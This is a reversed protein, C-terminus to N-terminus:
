NILLSAAVFGAILLGAALWPYSKIIIHGISWSVVIGFLAILLFKAGAPIPIYLSIMQFIVVIPLHILYIDYSAPHLHRWTATPRQGWRLGASLFFCLLALASFVRLGSHTLALDWPIPAPRDGITKLVGLLLFVLISAASLWLWPSIPFFPSRFWNRKSAYFGLIFFGIYIPIRTPQVLVFGGIKAWTWDPSVRHVLGMLVASAVGTVVVSTLILANGEAEPVRRRQMLQPLAKAVIATLMFFILLLSIFWLHWQSYDQAHRMAIEPTTIHVWHWDAATIMQARWYAFFGVAQDTRLSYGIYPMIPVFLIGVLLLPVGLRKLKAAVFGGIGRRQLSSLAFYGAVFYLVPMQYVDLVIILLDFIQRRDSDLVSWWPIITAYACAAHLVVVGLVMHYRIKDLFVVRQVQESKELLTEM